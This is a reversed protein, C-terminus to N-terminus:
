NVPGYKQRLSAGYIHALVIPVASFAVIAAQTGFSVDAGVRNMWPEQFYGVSFGGATRAFQLWCSTEAPVNPYSDLGYATVSVSMTMVGFAFIGLGFIVGVLPLTKELCQGLLILSPVMLGISIYVTWLRVESQFVGKHKKIYRHAMYDNFYHGFMEGLFVGVINAFYLFGITKTTLGYGGFEKPKFFLLNTSINIGIAWAFCLFYAFCILAFAPKMITTFFRKCVPATDPFYSKNRIQWIGTIRAMRSSLDSGRLPQHSGSVDRNYWTEDVFAVVLVLQLGVVGSCMWYIDPWHHTEHIVFNALCPGLYPSAIYLLAWLGIKRAREHFFFMDKLLAITMTQGSTLFLGSLVRMAFYTGYSDAVASGLNVALGVVTTWFLVPARGWISSLPVWLLGGLGNFLVCMANADNIRNPTKNWQAAQNFIITTGAAATFDTCLAAWAVTFLVLHKRTWSWNLPDSPDETPQPLLVTHGDAAVKLSLDGDLGETDLLLGAERRVGDPLAKVIGDSGDECHALEAKETM